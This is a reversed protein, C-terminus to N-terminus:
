CYVIYVEPFKKCIETYSPDEQRIHRNIFDGLGRFCSDRFEIPIKNCKNIAYIINDDLYAHGLYFGISQSLEKKCIERFDIALKNCEKNGLIFDYNLHQGVFEGLSDFCYKRFDEPFQNCKEIGISINHGFNQGIFDSLGKFCSLKYEDPINKCKEIANNLSGNFYIGFSNGLGVYCSPKGTKEVLNCFEEVNKVSILLAVHHFCFYDKAVQSQMCAESINKFHVKNDLLSLEDALLYYCESRWQSDSINSCSDMALHITESINEKINLVIPMIMYFNCESVLKKDVIKNCIEKAKYFDTRALNAANLYTCYLSYDQEYKKCEELFNEFEIKSDKKTMFELMHPRIGIRLCIYQLYSDEISYCNEKSYDIAFSDQMNLNLYCIDRVLNNEINKCSKTDSTERKCSNLVLFFIIILLLVIIKKNYKM